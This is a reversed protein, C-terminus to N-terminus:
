RNAAQNAAANMYDRNARDYERQAAVEDREAQRLQDAARRQEDRAMDYRDALEDRTRDRDRIRRAEDEYGSAKEHAARKERVLMQAHNLVSQLRTCERQCFNVSAASM